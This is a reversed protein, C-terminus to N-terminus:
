YSLARLVMQKCRLNKFRFCGKQFFFRMNSWFIDNAKLMIYNINHDDTSLCLKTPFTKDAKDDCYIIGLDGYEKFSYDWGNYKITALYRGRGEPREVFAKNDNLYVAQSQYANIHDAGFARNFASDTQAEGAAKVYAQELVYGHGRLFKTDERLRDSIGMAIFYPNLITIPNSAMYVPVFRVMKGQGRAVATHIARFKEVEMPCYRNYESQFEDMFMRDTDSFLHSMKKIHEASNLAVAYGCHTGDLYLDHYIGKSRRKSEMNKDPFFLRKTEKFFKDQVEDLENNFRYLLMFKSGTDLFRNILLRSFYTTKGGTKNSTVMVIEPKNGDLDNLSLLKTGDYHQGM